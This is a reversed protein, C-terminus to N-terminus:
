DVVKFQQELFWVPIYIHTIMYIIYILNGAKEDISKPKLSWTQTVLATLATMKEPLIM